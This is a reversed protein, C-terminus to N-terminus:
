SRQSEAGTERIMVKRAAAFFLFFFFVPSFNRSLFILSRCIQGIFILMLSGLDHVGAEDWLVQGGEDGAVGNGRGGARGRWPEGGDERGQSARVCAGGQQGGM